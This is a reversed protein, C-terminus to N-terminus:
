MVRRLWIGSSCNHQVRSSGVATIVHGKKSFAKIWMSCSEQITQSSQKLEDLEFPVDSENDCYWHAFNRTWIYKAFSIITFSYSSATRYSWITEAQKAMFDNVDVDGLLLRLCTDKKNLKTLRKLQTAHRSVTREAKYGGDGSSMWAQYKALLDEDVINQDDQAIVLQQTTGTRGHVIRLHKDLRKAYAHWRRVPYFKYKRPRRINEGNSTCQRPKRVKLLNTAYKSKDKNWNHGPLNSQM